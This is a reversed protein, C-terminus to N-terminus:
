DHMFEELAINFRIPDVVHLDLLFLVYSACSSGRGVGWVQGTKKMEDIVYIITRLVDLMGRRAFEQMEAIFRETSQNFQEPTYLPDVRQIYVDSMYKDIDLTKYLEPIQWSFDFRIPEGTNLNLRNEESVALNFKATEETEINIRIQQPMLGAVLMYVLKTPDVVSVGDFRLIRDNLETELMKM